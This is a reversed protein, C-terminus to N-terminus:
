LLLVTWFGTWPPNIVGTVVIDADYKNKEVIALSAAAVVAVFIPNLCSGM